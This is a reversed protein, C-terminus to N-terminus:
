NAGWPAYIFSKIFAWNNYVTYAVFFALAYLVMNYSCGAAPEDDVGKSQFLMVAVIGVVFCAAIFLAWYTYIPINLFTPNSPDNFASEHALSLLMGLSFIMLAPVATIIGKTRPSHTYYNEIAYDAIPILGILVWIDKIKFLPYHAFAGISIGTITVKCSKCILYTFFAHIVSAIFLFLVFVSAINWLTLHSDKDPALIYILLILLFMGIGTTIRGTRCDQQTINCFDM